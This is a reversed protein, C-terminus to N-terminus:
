LKGTGGDNVITVITQDNRGPIIINPLMDPIVITLYFTKNEELVNDNIITINFSM